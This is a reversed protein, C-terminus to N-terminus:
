SCNYGLSCIPLGLSPLQGCDCVHVNKYVQLCFLVSCRYFSSLNNYTNNIDKPIKQIPPQNAITGCRKKSNKKATGKDYM